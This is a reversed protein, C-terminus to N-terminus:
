MHLAVAGRPRVTITATGDDAVTTRNGDCSAPSAAVVNGYTGALLTTTFTRELEADGNNKWEFLTATVTKEGPPTAQSPWPALATLGGAALLGALTARAARSSM